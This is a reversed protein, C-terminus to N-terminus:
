ICVLNNITYRSSKSGCCQRGRYKKKSISDFFCSWYDLFDTNFVINIILMKNELHFESDSVNLLKWLKDVEDIPCLYEAHYILAVHINVYRELLGANQPIKSRKTRLM